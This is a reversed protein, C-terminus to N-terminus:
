KKESAPMPNKKVLMIQCTGCPVVSSRLGGNAVWEVFFEQPRSSTDVKLWQHNTDCSLSPSAAKFNLTLGGIGPRIELVQPYVVIKWLKAGDFLVHTEHPFNDVTKDVSYWPYKGGKLTATRKSIDCYYGSGAPAHPPLRFVLSSGVIPIPPDDAEVKDSRQVGLATPDSTFKLAMGDFSTGLNACQPSAGDSVAFYSGGYGKLTYSDGGHAGPVRTFAGHVATIDGDVIIDLYTTATDAANM